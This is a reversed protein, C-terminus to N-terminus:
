TNRAFHFDVGTSFETLTVEDPQPVPDAAADISIRWSVATGDAPELREIQARPAVCQVAAALGADDGDALIAPWTLGDPEETAACPGISAVLATGDAAPVLRLDVYSRPLFMPHVALVAAVGALDAEVGLLRALRKATVGAIGTLQKAGMATAENGSSREAVQILYARSLLHGQLCVEDAITGLAASSFRQMVLDADLPGAYDDWGDDTALDPDPAALAVAAAASRGLQEAQPPYPLPDADDVIDVTWACHPARDAPVRPPRHIPRVQARPNTATATADFTPDEIDHCMAQVYDDGMPEVDMLAGCHDLHFEGRHDDHVTYRFDMFEPPAGVDLQMGKFIVEVTDGEFGLLRQMRKTYIPSAAMWEDIAVQTMGERGFRAILHPMGSRDILHGALLLERALHALEEHTRGAWPRAVDVGGLLPQTRPDTM